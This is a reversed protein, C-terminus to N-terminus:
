ARQLYSVLPCPTPVQTPPAEQSCVGPGLSHSLPCRHGRGVGVKTCVLVGPPTPREPASGDEQRFTCQVLLLGEGEPSFPPGAGRASPGDGGVAEIAPREVNQPVAARSPSAHPGRPWRVERRLLVRCM